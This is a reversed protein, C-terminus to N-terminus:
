NPLYGIASKIEEESNTIKIQVVKKNLFLSTILEQLNELKNDEVLALKDDNNMYHIKIAKNIENYEVTPNGALIEKIHLHNHTNKSLMDNLINFYTNKNVIWTSYGLGWCMNLYSKLYYLENDRVVILKNKESTTKIARKFLYSIYTPNLLLDQFHDVKIIESISVASSEDVMNIFEPPLNKEVFYMLKGKPNSELHLITPREDFAKTIIKNSKNTLTELKELSTDIKSEINAVIQNFFVGLNDFHAEIQEQQWSDKKFLYFLFTITIITIGTFGLIILDALPTLTLIKGTSLTIDLDKLELLKYVKQKIETKFVFGFIALVITAFFALSSPYKIFKPLM